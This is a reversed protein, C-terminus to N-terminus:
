RNSFLLITRTQASIFHFRTVYKARAPAFPAPPACSGNATLMGGDRHKQQTKTKKTKKANVDWHYQSAIVIVGWARAAVLQASAGVGREFRFVSNGVSGAVLANINIANNNIRLTQPYQVLSM